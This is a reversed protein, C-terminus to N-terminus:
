VLFYRVDATHSAAIYLFSFVIMIYLLSKLWGRYSEGPVRTFVLNCVITKTAYAIKYESARWTLTVMPSEPRQRIDTSRRNVLERIEHCQQQCHLKHNSNTCFTLLPTSSKVGLWGPRNSWPLVDSHPLLLIRVVTIIAFGNRWLTIM